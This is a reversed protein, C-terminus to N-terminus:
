AGSGGQWGADPAWHEEQRQHPESSTTLWDRVEITKDNNRSSHSIFLRAM